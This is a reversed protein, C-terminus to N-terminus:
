FDTDPPETTIDPNNKVDEKQEDPINWKDVFPYEGMAADDGHVWKIFDTHCFRCFIFFDAQEPPRRREYYDKDERKAYDDLNNIGRGCRKCYHNPKNHPPIETAGASHEDRQCTM